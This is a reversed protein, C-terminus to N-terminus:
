NVSLNKILEQRLHRFRGQFQIQRESLKVGSNQELERRSEDSESHYVLPSRIAIAAERVDYVSRIVRGAVEYRTKGILQRQWSQLGNWGVYGAIIAAGITVIDRLATLFPQVSQIWIVYQDFSM